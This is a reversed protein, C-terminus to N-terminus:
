LETDNWNELRSDFQAQSMLHREEFLDDDFLEVKEDFLDDLPDHVKSHTPNGTFLSTSKRNETCTTLNYKLM